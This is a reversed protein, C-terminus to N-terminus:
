SKRAFIYVIQAIGIYGFIPFCWNILNSFGIKSILISLLCIWCCNRFYNKDSNLTLFAYGCSFATTFIAFLIAFNYLTYVYINTNKAVFIMPMEASLIQPYLLNINYYIMVGALCLALSVFVSLLSIEKKKLNYVHLENLIPILLISNYGVYLIASLLWNTLLIGGNTESEYLVYEDSIHSTLSVLVIDILIIPVLFNNLKELGKFKLLFLIFCILSAFFTGVWFNIHYQENGYTGIASIMICFCIFTFMKVILSLIKNNTYKHEKKSVNMVLYIVLGFLFSSVVIGVIGKEMFMNFFTAIEKGSAFGAGILTGIIIMACKLIRKMRGGNIIDCM